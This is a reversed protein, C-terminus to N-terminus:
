KEVVDSDWPEFAAASQSAALSIATPQRTSADELVTQLLEQM